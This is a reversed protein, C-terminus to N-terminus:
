PKRMAMSKALNVDSRAKLSVLKSKSSAPIKVARQPFQSGNAPTGKFNELFTAVATAVGNLVSQVEAPVGVPLTIGADVKVFVQLIQTAKQTSTWPQTEALITAAQSTAASVAQLYTVILAQTQPPLGTAQGIVPIAVEAAAVAAELSTIVSSQQCALTALLLVIVFVILLAFALKPTM